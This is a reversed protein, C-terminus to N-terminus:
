RSTIDDTTGGKGDPGPSAVKPRSPGTPPTYVYPNGWPDRPAAASKLYPGRWAPVGAPPQTLAGIGEAATPFRGTDENFAALAVSLSEVDTRAAAARVKAAPPTFTLAGFSYFVGLLALVALAWLWWPARRRTPKASYDHPTTM